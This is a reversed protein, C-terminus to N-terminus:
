QRRLENEAAVKGILDLGLGYENEVELDGPEGSM